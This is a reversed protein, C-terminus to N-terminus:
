RQRWTLIALAACLVGSAAHFAIAPAPGGASVAIAADGFCVFVGLAFWLALARWERFWALAMALAGLWLDRLAIVYHFAWGEMKGGLGFTWAADDPVILFRFGIVFLLLGGLFSAIRLISPSM